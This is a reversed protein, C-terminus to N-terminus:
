QDDTFIRGIYDKTCLFFLMIVVAIILEIIVGTFAARKAALPNGAGLENGVRIALATGYGLPIQM